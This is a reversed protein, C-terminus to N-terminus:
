PAAKTAQTWLDAPYGALTLWHGVNADRVALVSDLVDVLRKVDVDTPVVVVKPDATLQARSGAFLVWLKSHVHASLFRFAKSGHPLYLSFLELESKFSEGEFGVIETARVEAGCQKPNSWKPAIGNCLARKELHDVREDFHAPEGVAKRQEILNDLRENLGRALRLKESIRPDLLHKCRVEAEAATRLLTFLAYSALPGKEMVLLVTRLHDESAYLLTGALVYPDTLEAKNALDRPSGAVPPTAANFLFTSSGEVRAHRAVVLQLAAHESPTMETTDSAM